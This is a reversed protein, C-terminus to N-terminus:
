DDRESYLFVTRHITGNYAIHIQMDKDPFYVNGITEAQYPWIRKHLKYHFSTKSFSPDVEVVYRKRNFSSDIRIDQRRVQASSIDFEQFSDTILSDLQTSSTLRHVPKPETTWLLYVSLSCSFILMGVILVRKKLSENHGSSSLIAQKKKKITQVIRCHRTSKFFGEEKLPLIEDM